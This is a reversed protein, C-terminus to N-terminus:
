SDRVFCAKIEKMFDDLQEGSRSDGGGGAAVAEGSLVFDAMKLVSLAAKKEMSGAKGLDVLRANEAELKKAAIKFGKAEVQAERKESLASEVLRKSEELEGKARRLDERHQKEREEIVKDCEADGHMREAIQNRLDEIQERLRTGELNSRHKDLELERVEDQLKQCKAWEAAEEERSRKSGVGGRGGEEKDDCRMTRRVQDKKRSGSFSSEDGSEASLSSPFKGLGGGDSGSALFSDAVAGNEAARTLDSLGNCIDELEAVKACLAEERKKSCLSDAIYEEVSSFGLSISADTMKKSAHILTKLGGMSSIERFDDAVGEYSTGCVYKDLVEDHARMRDERESQVASQTAISANIGCLKANEDAVANRIEQLRRGADVIELELRDVDMLRNEMFVMTNDLDQCSKRMVRLIARSQKLIAQACLGLSAADDASPKKALLNVLVNLSKLFNKLGEHKVAAVALAFPSPAGNAEPSDLLFAPSLLIGAGSSSGGVAEEGAPARASGGTTAGGSANRGTSGGGGGGAEEAAAAAAAKSVSKKGKGSQNAAAVMGHDSWM